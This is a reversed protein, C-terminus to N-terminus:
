IMHSSIEERLFRLNFTHTHLNVLVDIGYVNPYVIAPCCSAIYVRRAKCERAMKIIEKSTTGRVISDDVILVNKDSFESKIPNLKKRVMLRRTEQGQM